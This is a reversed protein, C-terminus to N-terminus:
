FHDGLPGSATGAFNLCTKKPYEEVLRAQLTNLLLAAMMKYDILTTISSSTVPEEQLPSCRWDISASKSGDLAAVIDTL